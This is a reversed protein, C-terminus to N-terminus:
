ALVRVSGHLGKPGVISRSDGAQISCTVSARGGQKTGHQLRPNKRSGSVAATRENRHRRHSETGLCPGGATSLALPQLPEASLVRAPHVKDLLLRANPALL